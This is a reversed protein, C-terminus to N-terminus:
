PIVLPELALEKILESRLTRRAVDYPELAPWLDAGAALAKFLGEKGKRRLMLECLVGGIAYAVNTHENIYTPDYTACIAVLDVDPEEELYRKLNARHWTFDYENSGALLTAMGEDLVWPREGFKRSSFLHVVEHTYVDKNNGSYVIDTGEARGGTPFVHMLPHQQYGHMRFLETPDTCSYFHIPFTPLEFFRSLRDIDALQQRAQQESFAHQPSIIYEVTGFRKREWQQTTHDLPSGLRVGEATGRALFDFVYRVREAVGSSDMKAWRVTLLRQDPVGTERISMLTPPYRPDGLSDFEAYLLEAQIGGFRELDPTYWYDNTEEPHVKKTCFRRLCAIAETNFADTTDVTPWIHLEGFEYSSASPQVEEVAQDKPTSAACSVLAIAAFLLAQM